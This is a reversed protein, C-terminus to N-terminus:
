LHGVVLFIALAVLAVVTLADALYVLVRGVTNM